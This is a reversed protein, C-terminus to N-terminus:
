SLVTSLCDAMYDPTADNLAFFTKLKWDADMVYILYSHDYTYGALSDPEEIREYYVNFADAAAAVAEPTGTLGVLKEPFAELSVYNALAEPTDREHDVSIFLTNPPEITSPLKAYAQKLAPLVVPCMNTCFTFGFFVVTPAGKYTAETVSEGTHTILDIPGGISDYARTLCGAQAGGATPAPASPQCAALALGSCILAATTLIKM